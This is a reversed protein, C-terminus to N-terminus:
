KQHRGVSQTRVAKKVFRVLGRSRRGGRQFVFGKGPRSRVIRGHAWAEDIRLRPDLRHDCRGGRKQAEDGAARDVVALRGQDPAKEVLGIRDEVVLHLREFLIRLLEARRPAIQIESKEDVPKRGLAFLADGDIDGIAIERGAIAGEDDGIRRAVLLIRAIHRRSSGLGLERHDQDIRALADQGLRPAVGEDGRQDADLRHHDGDVLHIEDIEGLLTELRDLAVILRDQGRQAEGVDGIDRKRGLIAVVDDLARRVRGPIVALGQKLM